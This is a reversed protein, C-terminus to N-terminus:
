ILGFSGNRWLVILGLAILMYPLLRTSWARFMREVVPHKTVICAIWCWLGTLVSFVAIVACCDAGDTGAFIPIYTAINDGGDAVTATAVTILRRRSSPPRQILGFPALFRSCGLFIPAFGLLGIYPLPIVVAARACLLSVIVIVGIGVFQGLVIQNTSYAPHAFFGCLLLLDDINTSAYAAIAVIILGIM